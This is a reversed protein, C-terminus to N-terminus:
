GGKIIYSALTFGGALFVSVALATVPDHGAGVIFGGATCAAVAIIATDIKSRREKPM